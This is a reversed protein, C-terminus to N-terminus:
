ANNKEWQKLEEESNFVLLDNANWSFKDSRSSSDVSDPIVAQSKTLPSDTHRPLVELDVEYGEGVQRVSHVKFDSNCNLLFENERKVGSIPAVWAGFGKGAPVRIKIDICGNRYKVPNYSGKIPTTSIFGLDKVVNGETFMGIDKKNMKRYVTIPHPLEFKDLGSQIRPILRKVLGLTGLEFEHEPMLKRLFKNIYTSLTGTYLRIASQEDQTIKSFWSGFPTKSDPPMCGLVQNVEAPESFEGSHQKPEEVKKKLPNTHNQQHSIHQSTTPIPTPPLMNSSSVPKTPDIYVTGMYGGAHVHYNPIWEKQPVLNPNPNHFITAKVLLPNQNMLYETTLQDTINPKFFM